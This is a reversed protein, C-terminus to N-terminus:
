AFDRWAGLAARLKHVARFLHVRVTSERMGTMMSIDRPSHDALHCLMFVQRQRQPLRDLARMVASRWALGVARHEPSANRRTSFLLARVRHRAPQTSTPVPWCLAM